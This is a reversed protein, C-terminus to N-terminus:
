HATGPGDRLEPKTGTISHKALGEIRGPLCLSIVEDMHGALRVKIGKLVEEAFDSIDNKNAKPIIVEKINGRKAALIKEKLGGVPLIRGRLTIEGTMAVNRRVHTKTLVSAIATAISIGASPGDKPISGEPVHIHIDHHLYFDHELEFLDSRSRVYTFAAQASEQMVEGLKGTITLRGKGPVASVEITLLDGGSETWAMGTVVGIQDMEESIGIRIKRPGLIDRVRAPNISIKDKNGKAINRVTKRCLDAIERELGRVGAERTYYRIIETISQDNFTINTEDLGHLKLQKRILYNRAIVLKEKETYGEIRIIELRDLLPRPITHLSNATTIFMVRSLDYDVDLFLDSFISNQEPDLVELLASSPDGRFDSSMKDIEDLLFVPNSTGAKKLGQIIKGPMAGVYTRRHGRIEAEDRMGGLSIKVFHRGTARALSRALSTKGVGPPGVLCLIPGKSERVRSQVCLYELIREKVKDLGYHDNNLVEEAGNIDSNERSYKGWPITVLWDIYNRSVAAEASMQSMM